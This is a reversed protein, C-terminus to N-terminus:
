DRSPTPTGDDRTALLQLTRLEITASLFRVSADLFLAEAGGPHASLLPNNPGHTNWIGPLDYQRTGVAYKITACNWCPNNPTGYTPPTGPANTGSLWGNVSGGDIRFKVGQSNVAFDSTEGVLLTHATGDTVEPLKVSRNAVLLGGSSIQGDVKPICCPSTRSRADAAAGSIGVYSPAMITFRGVTFWPPLPSSPCVMAPIAVRDVAMGNAAHLAVFGSSASSLDLRSYLAAQDMHPLVGAWWAPGITPLTGAARQNRCGIPLSRSSEDYAAIALGVQKLNNACTARRAAERAFQVAPLLLAVLLSLILIVVLLEILTFGQRRERALQQSNM